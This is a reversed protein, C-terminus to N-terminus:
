GASTRDSSAAIRGDRGTWAPLVNADVAGLACALRPELVQRVHKTGAYVIDANPCLCVPPAGAAPFPRRKWTWPPACGPPDSVARPGARAASVLRAVALSVSIAFGGM